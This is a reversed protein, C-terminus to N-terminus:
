AACAQQRQKLLQQLARLRESLRDLARRNAESETAKEAVDVVSAALQQISEHLNKIVLQARREREAALKRKKRGGGADLIWSAGVYIAAGLLIAIGIGPVMGLGLGLAALGSTVGAASLGVVAGSFYVITIPVGVSSLASAAKKLMEEALKDDLGRERVKKATEAFNMIAAFQEPSAGLHVRAFELAEREDAEIVGDALAVDVIGMLTGLRMTEEANRLVPLIDRLLPPNIVYGHVVRKDAESLGELDLTSYILDIEEKDVHSDAASMAFLAGYFAVRHETPLNAPNFDKSM